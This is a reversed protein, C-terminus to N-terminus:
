CICIKGIVSDLLFSVFPENLSPKFCFDIVVVLMFYFCCAEVLFVTFCMATIETLFICLDHGSGELSHLSVKRSQLWGPAPGTVRCANRTMLADSLM